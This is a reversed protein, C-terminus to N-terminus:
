ALDALQAIVPALRPDALEYRAGRDEPVAAVLGRGRLYALHNSVDAEALGLHDALELPYGPTELLCALVRRRTEHALETEIRGLGGPNRVTGTM